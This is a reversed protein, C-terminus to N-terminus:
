GFMKYFGFIKSYIENFVAVQQEERYGFHLVIKLNCARNLHTVKLESSNIKEYVFKPQYNVSFDLYSPIEILFVNSIRSSICASSM